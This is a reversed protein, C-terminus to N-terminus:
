SEDELLAAAIQYMRKVAAHGMQDNVNVAGYGGLCEGAKDLTDWLTDRIYDYTETADLSGGACWRIAADDLAGVAKSNADRALAGTTWHKRVEIRAYADSLAELPTM